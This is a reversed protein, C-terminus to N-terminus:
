KQEELLLELYYTIDTTESKLELCYTNGQYFFRASQENEAFALHVTVGCIETYADGTYFRRDDVNLRLLLRLRDGNPYEQLIEASQPVKPTSIDTLGNVALNSGWTTHSNLASFGDSYLIKLSYAYEEPLRNYLHEAGLIDNLEKFSTKIETNDPPKYGNPSLEKMLLASAPIMLFLIALCAALSRKMVRFIVTKKPLAANEIYKERLALANELNEDDILDIISDEKM